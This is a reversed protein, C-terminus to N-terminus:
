IRLSSFLGAIKVADCGQAAEAILARAKSFFALLIKEAQAHEPVEKDLFHKHVDISDTLLASVEGDDKVLYTKGEFSFFYHGTGLDRKGKADMFASSIKGGQADFRSTMGIEVRGTALPELVFAMGKHQSYLAISVGEDRYSEPERDRFTFQTFFSSIFRDPGSSYESFLDFPYSITYETGKHRYHAYRHHPAYGQHFSDERVFALTLGKDRSEAVFLLPSSLNDAFSLLTPYSSAMIDLGKPRSKAWDIFGGLLAYAYKEKAGFCTKFAKDQLLKFDGANGGSLASPGDKQFRHWALM